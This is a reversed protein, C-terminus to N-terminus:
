DQSIKIVKKKLTKKKVLPKNKATASKASKLMERKPLSTVNVSSNSSVIEGKKIKM